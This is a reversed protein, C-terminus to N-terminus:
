GSQCGKEAAGHVSSPGELLGRVVAAQRDTEAGKLELRAVASSLVSQQANHALQRSLSASEELARLAAYLANEVSGSHASMM